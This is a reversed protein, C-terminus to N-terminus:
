RVPNFVIDYKDIISYLEEKEDAELEVLPRRVYDDIIGFHALAAKVPVPNPAMFLKKMVPYLKKHMNLASKIDGTKFNRIMSKMDSGVIHSAVSVVGHAGIALMPLTLSDDGSYIAFDDPCLMKMETVADMDAFSQKIGVINEYKEALKKVTAPAMNVGTRGPINYIIIPLSTAEAIASFHAIMGCQSPKNYYPVVSLIGDVEEKEAWKASHIATETSNSGANMIVKARNRNARKITSLLEFEEEHTLTPGEGTTGAVLLADSGNTVLYDALTEAKNFDIERKSDFPTVMATIIEGADFRMAM